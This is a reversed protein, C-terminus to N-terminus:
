PALQSLQALAISRRFARGGVACVSGNIPPVVAPGAPLEWIFNCRLGANVYLPANRRNQLALPPEQGTVDNEDKLANGTSSFASTAASRVSGYRIVRSPCLRSEGAIPQTANCWPKRGASRDGATQYGVIGDQSTPIPHLEILQLPALEDRKEAARRAM